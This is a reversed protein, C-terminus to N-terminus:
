HLQIMGPFIVQVLLVILPFADMINEQDQLCGSAIKALDEEAPTRSSLSSEMIEEMGGANQVRGLKPRKCQLRVGLKDGDSKRM